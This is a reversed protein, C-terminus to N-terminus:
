RVINRRAIRTARNDQAAMWQRHRFHRFKYRDFPNALAAVM